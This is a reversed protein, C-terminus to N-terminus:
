AAATPRPASSTPSRSSRSASSSTAAATRSRRRARAAARRGDRARPRRHRDARGQGRGVVPVDLLARLDSLDLIPLQKQDAYRFILASARSRRTTRASCRASCSRASTPSRRACPCAPVSAASRSTSARSGRPSSRCASTPRASAPPSTPRGPRRHGVVDGKVDAVFVPVGAASLAEALGQLTKTKGTGTAGAILGHRTLMRLPVKVDADRFLEGEHVGRGLDIAAGTTAYAAAIPQRLRRGHPSSGIRCPRRGRGGSVARHLALNEVRDTRVEVITTTEAALAEDLAAGFAGATRRWATSAASRRRWAPSTSARRTAM